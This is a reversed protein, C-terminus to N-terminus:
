SPMNIQRLSVRRWLKTQSNARRAKGRADPEVKLSFPDPQRPPLNVRAPAELRRPEPLRAPEPIRHARLLWGAHYAYERELRRLLADESIDTPAHKM